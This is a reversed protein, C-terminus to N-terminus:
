EGDTTRWDKALIEIQRPKWEWRGVHEGATVQEMIVADDVRDLVLCVSRGGRCVRKGAELQALAWGFDM